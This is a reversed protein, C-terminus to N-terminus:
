VFLTSDFFFLLKHVGLVEIVTLSAMLDLVSQLLLSYHSPNSVAVTWLSQCYRSLVDVYPEISEEMQNILCKLCTLVRLKSDMETQFICYFMISFFCETKEDTTRKGQLMQLAEFIQKVLDDLFPLFQEKYFNVDDMLVRLTDIVTLKLVLDPLRLNIQCSQYLKVRYDNPIKTLWCQLLWYVRRKVVVTSNDNNNNNILEHLLIDLFEQVPIYDSFHGFALGIAFYISEKKL